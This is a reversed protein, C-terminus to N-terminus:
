LQLLGLVEYLVFAPWVCAKFFAIIVGWFDNAQNVFYVLAGVWALFFIFGSMGENKNITVFSKSDKSM